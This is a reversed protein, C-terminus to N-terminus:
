GSAGVKEALGQLAETFLGVEEKTNYLYLSARACGELDREHFWAHCCHMGSRLMIGASDDLVVAIDHASLGSLNFSFIGGRLNPDEPPLLSLGDLGRLTRTLRRNLEIEHARIEELGIKSLFRLAAGAGLIGAYNQLGAEFKEPPGLWDARSPWSDLVVHGGYTLPRLKRLRELKGYLFGVGSPGLMKHASAAVYDVGLREVELAQRPASQAADLLVEAGADHALEVIERAPITYGTVNSTHAMAVLRVRKTLARQFAELSLTEDPESRLRVHRVGRQKVLQLLPLHVSNHEHDTALVIDGRKWPLGFLVTNLGETCNKTFAIESPDSAGFFEAAQERTEDVRMSVQAALRHASRGACAPYEEYYEQM